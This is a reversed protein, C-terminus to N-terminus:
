APDSESWTCGGYILGSSYCEFSVIGDGVKGLALRYLAGILEGSLVLTRSVLEFGSGIAVGEDRIGRLICGLVAAVACIAHCVPILSVNVRVCKCYHVALKVHIVVFGDTKQPLPVNRAVDGFGILIPGIERFSGVGGLLGRAASLGQLESVGRTARIGGPRGCVRYLM